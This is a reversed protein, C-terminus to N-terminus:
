KKKSNKSQKLKSSAVSRGQPGTIPGILPELIKWLKDRMEWWRPNHADDMKMWDPDREVDDPKKTPQPTYYFYLLRLARKQESTLKM